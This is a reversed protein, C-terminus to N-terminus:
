PECRYFSPQRVATTACWSPLFGVHIPSIPQGRVADDYVSSQLNM